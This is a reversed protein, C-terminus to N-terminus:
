LQQTTEKDYHRSPCRNRYDLVYFLVNNAHKIDGNPNQITSYDSNSYVTPDHYSNGAISNEENTDEKKEKEKEFKIM